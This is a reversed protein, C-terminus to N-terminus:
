LDDKGKILPHPYIKVDYPLSEVLTKEGNKLEDCTVGTMPYSIFGPIREERVYIRLLDWKESFFNREGLIKDIERREICSRKKLQASISKLSNEHENLSYVGLCFSSALVFGISWNFSYEKLSQNEWVAARFLILQWALFVHKLSFAVSAFHYGSLLYVGIIVFLVSPWFFKSYTRKFLDGPLLLFTGYFLYLPIMEPFNELHSVAVKDVLNFSYTWIYHNFFTLIMFVFSTIKELKSLSYEKRWWLYFEFLYVFLANPHLFCLFLRLLIKQWDKKVYPFFLLVHYLYAKESIFKVLTLTLFFSLYTSTSRKRSSLIILVLLYLFIFNLSFLNKLALLSDNFFPFLIYFPLELLHMSFRGPLAYGQFRSAEYFFFSGDETLIHDIGFSFALFLVSLIVFTPLFIRRDM